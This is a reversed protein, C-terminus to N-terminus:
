LTLSPSSGFTFGILVACIGSLAMAAITLTTRGYRDSVVGGLYCGIAGTAIVVFTADSANLCAYEGEGRADLSAALFVGIWAWMAYLEWMHGFYGLCALRAARDRFVAAAMRVDFRASPFTHPGERVLWGAIASSGLA